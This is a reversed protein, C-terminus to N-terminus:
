FKMGAGARFTNVNVRARELSPFYIYQWEARLFANEAIAVDAGVGAAMGLGIRSKSSHAVSIPTPSQLPVFREATHTVTYDTLAFGATVFPLFSGMTYGARARVTMLNKLEISSRGTMTVSGPTGALSGGPGNLGALDGVTRGLSDESRLNMRTRTFDMEFGLVAEDYQYNFGAFFGFSTDRANATPLSLWTATRYTNEFLTDRQQHAIQRRLGDKFNANGHTVGAFAGFYAGDWVHTPAMPTGYQTGRLPGLSFDAALAAPSAAAALALLAATTLFKARM